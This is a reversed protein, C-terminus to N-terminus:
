EGVGIIKLAEEPTYAVEIQGEWELHFKTQAPTRMMNERSAISHHKETARNKTEILYNVGRFGVLRDGCGKSVNGMVVVSAGAKRLAADIAKQNADSRTRYRMKTNSLLSALVKM